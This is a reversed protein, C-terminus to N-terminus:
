SDWRFRALARVAGDITRSDPVALTQPYGLHSRLRYGDGRVASLVRGTNEEPVDPGSEVNVLLRRSISLLEPSHDVAARTAALLEAVVVDDNVLERGEVRYSGDRATQM